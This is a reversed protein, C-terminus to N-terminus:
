EHINGISIPGHRTLQFLERPEDYKSLENLYGVAIAYTPAGSFAYLRVDVVILGTEANVLVEMAYADTTAPQLSGVGVYENWNKLSADDGLIMDLVLPKFNDLGFRDVAVCYGIKALMRVFSSLNVNLELLMEGNSFPSKPNSFWMGYDEIRDEPPKPGSVIRPPDFVPLAITLPFNALEYEVFADSFGTVGLPYIKVTEKHAGKKGVKYNYAIRFQGLQHRQVDLEFKSTM